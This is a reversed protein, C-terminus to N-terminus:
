REVRALEQLSDVLRELRVGRSAKLLILDEPEILEPLREALAEVTPFAYIRKSTGASGTAGDAMVRSMAGVVIIVQATSRGADRGVTQHCRTSQDGLERMDGLILVKRRVDQICDLVEFAAALSSPNANYADNIVTLSGVRTRQMRMPPLQVKAVAETIEETTMRFRSGIAIAALANVVNHRGLVPLQYEFRANVKFRQGDATAVIETARLDCGPSGGSSEDDLGYTLVTFQNRITAPAFRAAQQSMAVFARSRMTSLISYEEGAVGDLSGFFELHEEGISTVVCIDPKAIRGLAAIEGPHNTGIEVVIFEDAPEVSLLTMPVGIHNNFSAKASRGRRKHGLVTAIMDKTTTKGNSGVVAVVQAAFQRRYWAALRGLSAVTDPVLVLRGGTQYRPPVASLDSIVAASAGRDLVDAVYAHGDHNEGKIAFFLSGPKADRSDTSVSTVTPSAITGFVRGEIAIVMEELTLPRM